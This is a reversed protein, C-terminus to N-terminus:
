GAAPGAGGICRLLVGGTITRRTSSSAARARADGGYLRPTAASAAGGQHGGGRRRRRGRRPRHALAAPRRCRPPRPRPRRSRPRRPWPRPASGCPRPARRQARTARRRTCTMAATSPTAATGRGTAGGADDSVRARGRAASAEACGGRHVMGTAGTSSGGGGGGAATVGGDLRAKVGTRALRRKTSTSPSWRRALLRGVRRRADAEEGARRPRDRGAGEGLGRLLRPARHGGVAYHERGAPFRM